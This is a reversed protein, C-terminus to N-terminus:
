RYKRGQRQGYLVDHLVPDARNDVLDPNPQQPDLPLIRTLEAEDVPTSHIEPELLRGPREELDETACTHRRHGLHHRLLDIGRPPPCV